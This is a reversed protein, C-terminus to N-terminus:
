YETKKECSKVECICSGKSCKPKTNTIVLCGTSDKTVYCAPTKEYCTISCSKNSSSSDAAYASVALMITASIVLSSLKM